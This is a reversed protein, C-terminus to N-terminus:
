IFCELVDSDEKAFAIFEDIEAHCTIWQKGQMHERTLVHVWNGEPLYVKREKAGQTYIPAFIIEGGYMYQDELSYCVEDEFFDWFMPRMILAGTESNMDMYKCTYPKLKERFILLKKIIHYNEKGFSWIENDGGSPEIIGPHKVVYNSQKKRAGHLRMVPCFLGFQFWRIILERFYDSEIDGFLFGGIDSNWWPIGSLSLRM